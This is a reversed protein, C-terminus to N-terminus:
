IKFLEGQVNKWMETLAEPGWLAKTFDIISRKNKSFLKIL